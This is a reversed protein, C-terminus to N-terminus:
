SVSPGSTLCQVLNASSESKIIERRLRGDGSLCVGVYRNQRAECFEVVVKLRRAEKLAGPGQERHAKARGGRYIHAKRYPHYFFQRFFSTFCPKPGIPRETNRKKELICRFVPAIRYSPVLDLRGICFVEFM